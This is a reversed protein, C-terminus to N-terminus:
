QIVPDVAGLRHAEALAERALLPCGRLLYARCLYRYINPNQPDVDRWVQLHHVLKDLMHYQNYVLFLETFSTPEGKQKKQVGDFDRESAKVFSVLPKTLLMFPYKRVVIADKPTIVQWYYQATKTLRFPPNYPFKYRPEPPTAEFIFQDKENFLQLRYKKINLNRWRFVPPYTTVDVFSSLFDMEREKEGPDDAGAFADSILKVTAVWPPSTFEQGGSRAMEREVTGQAKRLERFAVSVVSDPGIRERHDDFFFSAVVKSRAGTRIQAEPTLLDLAYCQRWDEGPYLIQADGWVGSVLAVPPNRSLEESGLPDKALAARSTVALVALIALISAIRKM